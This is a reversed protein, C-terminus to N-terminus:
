QCSVVEAVFRCTRAGTCWCDVETVRYPQKFWTEFLGAFFGEDYQCVEYSLEPLGSCDLDEDVTLIVRGTQLDVEEVRLIGIGYEQLAAQLKRLYEPLDAAPGVAHEGFARGAILGAERLLGDAQETGFRRELVDRLSFQMLRYAELRTTPGLNPRGLGIDGLLDWSFGHRRNQM